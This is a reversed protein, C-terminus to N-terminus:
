GTWFVYVPIHFLIGITALLSGVVFDGLILGLFFPISRQYGKIGYFRLMAWKVASALVLPFWIRGIGWRGSIVYGVPHFPWWLFRIHMMYLFLTFLFGVVGFLVEMPQWDTPSRLRSDLLRLGVGAAWSPGERYLEAGVKYADHLYFWFGSIAGIGAALLIASIIGKPRTRTREAFKFCELQIPMPSERGSSGLIWHLLGFGILNNRGLRRSGLTTILIYDPTTWRLTHVPPGLEARIRTIATHFAFYLLFFPVLVWVSMGIYSCFTILLVFGLIIGLVASRYTMPEDPDKVETGKLVQVIVAKFHRRGLWVAFLLLAIWGGRVQAGEYPFQSLGAFGMASGVVRELQWFLHFFWTSVILDLPMLYGMGIAFPYFTRYMYRIANWPKSTFYRSLSVPQVPISPFAPYLVHLQNIIDIFAAISFGLWLLHNSFLGKGVGERTMELPLQAIPYALRENRVWQRRVIANICLMVFILVVTFGTWILARPLWERIYISNYFTSQGEYYGRLVKRNNVVLWPPFYRVFLNQWDNEPTAYWTGNGLLSVLCKIMDTGNLATATALMAYITLLERQQLTQTPALRRLGNNFLVLLFLIFIVNCFLALDTIEIDLVSSVPAQWYSNVIILVAGIIIARVTAFSSSESGKIDM